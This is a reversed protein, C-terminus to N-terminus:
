SALAVDVQLVVICGAAQSAATATRSARAVCGRRPSPPTATCGGAPSSARRRHPLRRAVDALDGVEVRLVRRRELEDLAVDREPWCSPTLDVGVNKMLPTFTSPASRAATRRDPSRRRAAARRLHGCSTLTRRHSPRTCGGRDICASAGRASWPSRRRSRACAATGRARDGSARPRPAALDEAKEAGVAGALRGRQLQQHLQHKGVDPRASIRPRGSPSRAAFRRARSGAPSDRSRRSGSRRPVARSNRRRQEADGAASRRARAAASSSSTPMPASRRSCSRLNEFPMSCRTPM